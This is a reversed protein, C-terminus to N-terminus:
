SVRPIEANYIYRFRMHIALIKVLNDPTLFYTSDPDSISELGMVTEIKKIKKSQSWQTYDENFNVGNAKLGAFLQKPMRAVEIERGGSLDLVRGDPSVKFGVFTINVSDQNFFIYPHTSHFSFYVKCLPLTSM